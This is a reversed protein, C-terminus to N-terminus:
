NSSEQKRRGKVAYVSVMFEHKTKTHFALMHPIALIMGYVGIITGGHKRIFDEIFPSPAVPMVSSSSTKLTKMLADSQQACKHLSYIKKGIELAKELFRRDAGRKQVGFPPNQLVTDFRGTIVDIDATIWQTKGKLEARVSNRFAMNVANKDVDVGVVQRAGLFAAGLALRGSGCGLDLVRKGIIDEHTYAAIYLVTAAVDAPITYQELNPEPMPHPGIQLLFRELDIRRVLRKQM